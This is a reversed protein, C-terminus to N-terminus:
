KLIPESLFKQVNLKRLWGPSFSIYMDIRYPILEEDVPMNAIAQIVDRGLLTDKVAELIEEVLAAGSEAFSGLKSIMADIEIDGTVKYLQKLDAKLEKDDFQGVMERESHALGYYRSQPDGIYGKMEVRTVYGVLVKLFSVIKDRSYMFSRKKDIEMGVFKAYNLYKREDFNLYWGLNDDSLVTGGLCVGGMQDAANEMFNRHIISGFTSTFPHGSKFFIGGIRLGLFWTESYRLCNLVWDMIWGVHKHKTIWELDEYVITQDYGSFDEGYVEVIHEGDSINADPWMKRLTDSSMPQIIGDEIDPLNDKIETFMESWETWAIWPVSGDRLVSTYNHKAVSWLAGLAKMLIDGGFVSRHKTDYNAGGQTRYFLTFPPYYKLRIAEKIADLITDVSLSINDKIKIKHKSYTAPLFQQLFRGFMKPFNKKTQKTWFPYGSNTNPALGTLVLEQQRDETEEKIAQIGSWISTWHKDVLKVVRPHASVPNKRQKRRELYSVTNAILKMPNFASKSTNITELLKDPFSFTEGKTYNDSLLANAVSIFKDSNGIVTSQFNSDGLHHDSDLDTRMVLQTLKSYTVKQQGTLLKAYKGGFSLVNDSPIKMRYPKSISTLRGIEANIFSLRQVEM